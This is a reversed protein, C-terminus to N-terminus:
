PAGGAGAGGISPDVVTLSALGYNIDALSMVEIKDGLMDRIEALKNKNNTAFVIKM